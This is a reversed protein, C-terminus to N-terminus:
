GIGWGDSGDGLDPSVGGDDTGGSGDGGLGPITLGQGASYDDPTGTLDLSVIGDALQQEDGDVSGWVSGDPVSSDDGGSGSGDTSDNSSSPKSTAAPPDGGILNWLGDAALMVAGTAALDAGAFFLAPSAPEPIAALTMLTAGTIGLSGAIETWGTTTNDELIRAPAAGFSAANGILLGSKNDTSVKLFIGLAKLNKYLASLEDPSMIASSDNWADALQAATQVSRATIVRASRLQVGVALRKNALGQGVSRLSVARIKLVGRLAGLSSCHAGSSSALALVFRATLM